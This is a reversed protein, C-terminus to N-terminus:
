FQNCCIRTFINAQDWWILWIIVPFVKATTCYYNRFIHFANSKLHGLILSSSVTESRSTTRDTRRETSLTSLFNAKKSKSVISSHNSKLWHLNYDLRPCPLNLGLAPAFVQGRPRYNYTWAKPKGLTFVKPYTSRCTGLKLLYFM